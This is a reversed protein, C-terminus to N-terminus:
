RCSAMYRRDSTDSVVPAVLRRWCVQDDLYSDLKIFVVEQANEELSLWM